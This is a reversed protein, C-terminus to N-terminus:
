RFIKIINDEEYKQFIEKERAFSHGGGPLAREWYHRRENEINGHDFGFVSIKDSYRVAVLLGLFGVSPHCDIFSSCWKIYNDSIFNIHNKNLNSLVGKRFEQWTYGKVFFHEGTLSSIFGPDNKSFRHPPTVGAFCHGNMIRINTRSGVHKEYGLTRAANFRIVVDHEDILSGYETDLLIGSSGVLAVSGMNDFNYSCTKNLVEFDM